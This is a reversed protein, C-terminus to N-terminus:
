TGIGPPRDLVSRIEDMRRAHEQDGLAPALGGCSLQLNLEVWTKCGDYRPEAPLSWPEARRFARVGLVWLGPRRYHFKKRVTEDDWAHLPRLVDLRGLDAAWAILDVVALTTLSVTAPTAAPSATAPQHFFTPYLWFAPHEPRFSGSEEAIGGKRFILSQRGEAIADCILSWEKFAVGCTPPLDPSPAPESM